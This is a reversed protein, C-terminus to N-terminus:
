RTVRTSYGNEYSEDLALVQLEHDLVEDREGILFSGHLRSGALVKPLWIQDDPWMREFPINSVSFWQPLIEESESPEGEWTEAFYVHVLQNWASQHTFTYRFEAVKVMENLLVGIEEKAERRAADIIQEGAEVKGGVGNWKNVAFARKKLGLLLETVEGTDSRKILFILTSDRLGKCSM